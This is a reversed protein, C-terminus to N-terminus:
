LVESVGQMKAGRLSCWSCLVELKPLDQSPKATSNDRKRLCTLAAATSM